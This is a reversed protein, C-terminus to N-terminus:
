RRTIPSVISFDSSGINTPTKITSNEFLNSFLIEVGGDWAILAFARADTLIAQIM